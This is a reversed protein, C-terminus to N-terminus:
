AKYVSLEFESFTQLAAADYFPLVQTVFVGTVDATPDIWFYCNALGGWFLSGPSRGEKTASANRLFSLAWGPRHDALLAVDNTLIPNCSSWGGVHRGDLHDRAMLEVTTPALVRAGDLTGRGLLMRTFRAYDVVTSYLEGGGGLMEPTDIQSTPPLPALAGESRLYISALREPTPFFTTDHMGLPEFIHEDFYADLRRGSLEEVVRGAWDLGIGYVWREGPDSVLPHEFRAQSGPPPPPLTPIFRALLEDAFDYGFGSTHTLLHLMTLPRTPTRLNANGNSDFGELVQVEGLYPIIEGLPQDLTLSGDEVLQMVAVATVAKTMSAIWVVTDPRMAIGPAALGESGEYHLKSGSWASAAVGVLNGIEVAARLVDGSLSVKM